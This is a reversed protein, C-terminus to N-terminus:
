LVVQSFQDPWRVPNDIAESAFGDVDEGDETCGSREGLGFLTSLRPGVFAQLQRGVHEM